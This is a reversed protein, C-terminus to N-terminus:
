KVEELKKKCKQCIHEVAKGLVEIWSHCNPCEYRTWTDTM